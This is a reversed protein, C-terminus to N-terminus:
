KLAALVTDAGAALEDVTAASLFGKSQKNRIDSVWKNLQDRTRQASPPNWGSPEGATTRVIGAMRTIMRDSEAATGLYFYAADLLDQANRCADACALGRGFISQEARARSQKADAAVIYGAKLNEDIRKNAAATYAGHSPYLV